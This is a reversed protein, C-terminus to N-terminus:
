ESFFVNSTNLMGFKKLIKIEDEEIEKVKAIKKVKGYNLTNTELYKDVNAGEIVRYCIMNETSMTVLYKKNTDYKSPKVYKIGLQKCVGKPIEKMVQIVNSDANIALMCVNDSPKIAYQIAMPNNKIAVIQMEETQKPVYQLADGCVNLIQMVRLDYYPDNKVPKMATELVSSYNKVFDKAIDEDFAIFAFDYCSKFIIDEKIEKTQFKMPIGLIAFKGVKKYLADVKEQTLNSMNLLPNVTKADLHSTNNIVEWDIDDTQQVLSCSALDPFRTSINKSTEANFPRNATELFTEIADKSATSLFKAISDDSMKDLSDIITDSMHGYEFATRILTETKDSITELLNPKLQIALVKLDESMNDEEFMIINPNNRVEMETM